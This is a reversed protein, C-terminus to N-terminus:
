AQEEKKAAKNAVVNKTNDIARNALGRLAIMCGLVFRVWAKRWSSPLLAWVIAGVVAVFLFNLVTLFLKM